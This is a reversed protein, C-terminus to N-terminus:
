ELPPVQDDDQFDPSNERERVLRLKKLKLDQSTKNNNNVINAYDISSAKADGIELYNSAKPLNCKSAEEEEL